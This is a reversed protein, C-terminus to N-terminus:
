REGLVANGKEDVLHSEVRIPGEGVGTLIVRSIGEKLLRAVAPELMRADGFKVKTGREGEWGEKDELLAKFAGAVLKENEEEYYVVANPGADFTYAAVAKGASENISEVARVAARSTDNMYFIPPVTDLCCAHFNNSDTMTLRAFAEFDRERIAKEMEGM